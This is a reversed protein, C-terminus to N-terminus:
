NFIVIKKSILHRNVTPVPCIFRPEVTDAVDKLIGSGLKLLMCIKKINVRSIFKCNAQNIDCKAVTISADIPDHVIQNIYVNGNFIWVYSTFNIKIDDDMKFITINKGPCTEIKEVVTELKKQLLFIFLSLYCM